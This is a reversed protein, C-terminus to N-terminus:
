GKLEEIKAAFYASKAPNNFSLKQYIQVAQEPKGQKILVEAMAETVIEEPENSHEAINKVRTEGAEDSTLEAPNSNVRKMQKLWDTFRKLQSGLKDDPKEEELRIGQSGFYDIRHYPINEIELEASSALPTEFSAAQEKLMSSLKDDTIDEEEDTEVIENDANLSRNENQEAASQSFEAPKGEMQTLEINGPVEISEDATEENLNFNLWIDNPFHLAAKHLVKEYDQEKSLYLKKALLFYAAGNYPHDNVENWLQETSVNQLSTTQFFFQLIIESSSNM